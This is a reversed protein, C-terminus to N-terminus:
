HNFVFMFQIGKGAYLNQIGGTPVVANEPNWYAMLYFTTKDFSRFWNVFNYIQKQEWNYYSIAQINDFMGIPYMMSLATNNNTNAFEFANEDNSFLMHELTVNLGAGLNFTYDSGLTFIQQHTLAGVYKSKNVYAGEFWLGVVLDWKGDIGIRNEPIKEYEPIVGEFEESNAVRHHYSIGTEGMPVPFQIRGGFEPITKNTGIVEMGKQNNNGYLSWLWINANNLFYYRALAGYVGDTLQLPDRPDVQDFWRLARLIQATGFDIKQLGIRVELQDTSYRGWLRYANLSANGEAKDWFQIGVDGVANASAEFDIKYNTSTNFEYNLQPIYRTGVYVPYTNNNNYHVWSSLQGKFELKNEEEKSQSFANLSAFILISIHLIKNM